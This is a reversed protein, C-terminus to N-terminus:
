PATARGSIAAWLAFVGDVLTYAGWLLTLSILTIAPWVMALVGFAVAAIGRLLLLWWNDGLLARLGARFESPTATQTEAM